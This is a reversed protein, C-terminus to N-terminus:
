NFFWYYVKEFINPKYDILYEKRKQAKEKARNILEHCVLSARDEDEEKVVIISTTSLGIGLPQHAFLKGEVKYPVEGSELLYKAEWFDDKSAPEFLIVHGEYRSSKKAM